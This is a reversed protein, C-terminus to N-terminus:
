MGAPKPPLPATQGTAVPPTKKEAKERLTDRLEGLGLEGLAKHVSHSPHPAEGTTFALEPATALAVFIDVMNQPASEGTRNGNVFQPGANVADLNHYFGIKGSESAPASGGTMVRRIFNEATEKATNAINGVLKASLDAQRVIFDRVEQENLLVALLTTVDIVNGSGGNEHVFARVRDMYLDIAPPKPTNEPHESM